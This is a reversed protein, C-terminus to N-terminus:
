WAIVSFVILQITHFSNSSLIHIYHQGLLAVGTMLIVSPLTFGLWAMLAGLYGRQLYGISLGVQSSSPGPLLQSVAVLQSYQTDNLGHIQIVCKRHFFVLPAAPGGFSICGLQLFIPFLRYLSSVSMA